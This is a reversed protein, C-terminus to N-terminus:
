CRSKSLPPLARCRPRSREAKCPNRRSFAPEAGNYLGKGPCSACRAGAGNATVPTPLNPSTRLASSVFSGSKRSPAFRPPRLFYSRNRDTYKARDREPLPDVERSEGAAPLREAGKHERGPALAHDSGVEADRFEELRAKRSLETSSSRGFGFSERSRSDRPLDSKWDSDRFDDRDFSDFGRSM